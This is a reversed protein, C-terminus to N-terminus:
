EELVVATPPPDEVFAGAAPATAVSLTVTPPIATSQLGALPAVSPAVLSVAAPAIDVIWPELAIPPPGALALAESFDSAMGVTGVQVATLAFATGTDAAMGVARQQVGALAFATNASLALGVPGSMGASLALATNTSIAVGVPRIAKAGLALATNTATALGVPRIQVPSLALATSTGTAMGVARVQRPALALATDTETAMGVPGSAGGGGMSGSANVRILVSAWITSTCNISHSVAGTSDGTPAGEMVVLGGGGAASVSTVIRGTNTAGINAFATGSISSAVSSDRDHAYSALFMDNGDGTKSAISNTNATTAAVPQTLTTSVTEPTTTDQGSYVLIKGVIHGNILNMTISAGESGDLIRRFVNLKTAGVDTGSSGVGVSAVQVFGTPPAPDAGNGSESFAYAVQGSAIGAPYSVAITATTGSATAGVGVFAVAM